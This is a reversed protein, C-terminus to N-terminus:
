EERKGRGGCLRALNEQKRKEPAEIFSKGESAAAKGSLVAGTKRAVDSRLFPQQTM